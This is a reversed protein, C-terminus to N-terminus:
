RTRNFSDRKENNDEKIKCYVEGWVELEGMIEQFEQQSLNEDFKLMSKLSNCREKFFNLDKKKKIAQMAEAYPTNKAEFHWATLKAPGGKKKADTATEEAAIKRKDFFSQEENQELFTKFKM